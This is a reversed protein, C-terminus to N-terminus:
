RLTIRYSDAPLYAGRRVLTIAAGGFFFMGTIAFLYLWAIRKHDTTLLWSRVGFAVNIYHAPVPEPCTEIPSSPSTVTSM